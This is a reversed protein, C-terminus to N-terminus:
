DRFNAKIVDSFFPLYAYLGMFSFVILYLLVGYILCQMVSYGFVFPGNFLYILQRILRNLFPINSLLETVTWFIWNVIIYCLYIFISQMIHYLGFRSPLNGRVTTVILWVIGVTGATMYTLAALIRESMKPLTSREM